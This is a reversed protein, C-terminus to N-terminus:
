DSNSIQDSNEQVAPSQVYTEFMWGITGGIDVRRWRGREELVLVPTGTDFQDLPQGIISPTARLFVRDGAVIASTPGPRAPVPAGAAEPGNLQTPAFRLLAAENPTADISPANTGQLFTPGPASDQLNPRAMGTDRGSPATGAPASQAAIEPTASRAVQAPSGPTQLGLPATGVADRWLGGSNEPAAPRAAPGEASVVRGARDPVAFGTSQDKDPTADDLLVPTWWSMQATRVVPEPAADLQTDEMTEVPDAYEIDPAGQTILAVFTLGFFLTAGMSPFDTAGM